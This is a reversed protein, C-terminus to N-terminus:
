CFGSTSLGRFVGWLDVIEDSTDRIKFLVLKLICFGLQSFNKQRSYSFGLVRGFWLHVSSHAATVQVTPVCIRGPVSLVKRQWGEAGM